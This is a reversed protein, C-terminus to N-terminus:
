DAWNVKINHKQAYLKGNAILKKYLQEFNGAHKNHISATFTKIEEPPAGQDYLKALQQYENKYVPLIYEYLAKSAEVIDKNDDNQTLGKVKKYADEISNIKMDVVEKRSMTRTKDTSGEVLMSSPQDLERAPGDAAFGM